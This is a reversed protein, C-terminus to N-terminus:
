PADGTGSRSRSESCFACTWAVRNFVCTVRVAGIRSFQVPQEPHRILCKRCSSLPEMPSTPTDVLGSQPEVARRFDSGLILQLRAIDDKNSKSNASRDLLCFLRCQRETADHAVSASGRSLFRTETLAKM